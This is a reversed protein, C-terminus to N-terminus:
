ASLAARLEKEIKHMGINGWPHKFVNVTLVSGTLTADAVVNHGEIHTTDGTISVTTDSDESLKARLADVQQPTVGSITITEPMKMTIEGTGYIGAGLPGDSGYGLRSRASGRTTQDASAELAHHIEPVNPADNRPYQCSGTM